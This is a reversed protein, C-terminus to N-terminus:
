IWGLNTLSFIWGFLTLISLVTSLSVFEGALKGDGGMNEAM